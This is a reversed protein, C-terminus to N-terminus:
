AASFDVQQDAIARGPPGVIRYVRYTLILSVALLLAGVAVHATTVTVMPPLPQPEHRAQLVEIYSGMGLFIQVLMLGALLIAPNKLRPEDRFDSSVRVLLWTVAVAVLLAFAAHPVIGM